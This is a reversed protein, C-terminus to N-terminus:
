EGPQTPRRGLDYREVCPSGNGLRPQLHAAIQEAEEDQVAIRAESVSGVLLEYVAGHGHSGM